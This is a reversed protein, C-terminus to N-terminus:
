AFPKLIYIPIVELFGTYIDHGCFQCTNKTQKVQRIVPENDNDVADTCKEENNETGGYPPTIKPYDEMCDPDTFDILGDFDDDIKNTCLGKSSVEDGGYTNEPNLAICVGDQCAEPNIIPCTIVTQECNEVKGSEPTPGQRDVNCHKENLYQSQEVVDTGLIDTVCTDWNKAGNDM